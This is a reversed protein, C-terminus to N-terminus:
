NVPDPSKGIRPYYGCLPCGNRYGLIEFADGIFPYELQIQNIKKISTDPLISLWNIKDDETKRCAFYVRLFYIGSFLNIDQFTTYM